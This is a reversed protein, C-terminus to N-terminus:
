APDDLQHQISRKPKIRVYHEDTEVPREYEHHQEKARRAERNYDHKLPESRIGMVLCWALGIAMAAM